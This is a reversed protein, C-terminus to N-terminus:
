IIKARWLTFQCEGYQDNKEGEVFFHLSCASREFTLNQTM